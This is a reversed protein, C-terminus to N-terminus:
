IDFEKTIERLNRVLESTVSGESTHDDYIESDLFSREKLRSTHNVTPSGQVLFLLLNQSEQVVIEETM